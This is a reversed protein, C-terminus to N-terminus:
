DRERKNKCYKIIHMTYYIFYNISHTHTASNNWMQGYLLLRSEERLSTMKDVDYLLNRCDHERQLDQWQMRNLDNNGRLLRMVIFYYYLSRLATVALSDNETM